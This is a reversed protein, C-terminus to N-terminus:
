ACSSATLLALLLCHLAQSHAAARLQPLGPRACRQGGCVWVAGFLVNTLNIQASSALTATITYPTPGAVVAALHVKWVGDASAAAVVDTADGPHVRVTVKSGPPAFGWVSALKPQAALVM